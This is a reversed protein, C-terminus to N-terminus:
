SAKGSPYFKLARGGTTTEFSGFMVGIKERIHNIFILFTNSQVM